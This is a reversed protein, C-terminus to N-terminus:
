EGSRESKNYKKEWDVAEVVMGGVSELDRAGMLRFVAINAGFERALWNRLEVAVLSDVGYSYLPKSTDIDPAPISIARSVKHTLSLTVISSAAAPSAATAFLHAYNPADSSDSSNSAHASAEDTDLHGLLSFMPQSLLDFGDGHASAKARHRATPLGFLSQGQGKKEMSGSGSQCYYDLIAHFDREEVVQLMGGLGSRHQAYEDKEAIVGVGGMVGLDLSVAAEGQRNRYEALADQFVNGAAYNGQGVTGAVGSLSSLFIFFSLGSPLLTHLNWSALRKSALSATWESFTMNEFLADRLVMTGQICGKIPPMIVSCFDLVQRLASANSVDCEYAEVRVGMDWLEKVLKQAPTSSPGSRSLLILNKAGKDAMWRAASRGLGGLGGAILYTADQPFTWTSPTPMYTQVVDAPQCTLVIKGTSKGSQMHRFADEAKSFSYAQLPHPVTLGKESMMEMLSTTMRKILQPKHDVAFDINVAIFSVNKAFSQMPLSNNAIIDAKGLEVFRGFPAMTEWSAVLSDGGLSNVLVDVGRGNTARKTAEAFSTNRSYFIHDDSLGYRTRLLERKSESSVTAYVEAGVAQAIQICFQGTGGAGAHILVSEGKELRAMEILGYYATVGVAPFAAAYEFSMDDPIKFVTDAHCRIHTKMCGINLAFVRDGPQLNAPCQTGVRLVVGSCEVGFRDDEVKGLATLLDKFNLGVARVELEVESPGLPHASRKDSVFRLSDLVGPTGVGLALPGAEKITRRKLQANTQEHIYQDLDTSEVVRRTHMKGDQLVYEVESTNPSFISSDCKASVQVIHRVISETDMQEDELSLTVFLRAPNESRLVRALGAIMQTDPWSSSNKAAQTVWLMGKGQSLMFKLTNFSAEDLESLLSKGAEELCIFSRDDLDQRSHLTDLSVVECSPCGSKILMSQLRMAVNRMEVNNQVLILIKDHRTPATERSGKSVAIRQEERVEVLLGDVALLKRANAIERETSEGALSPGSYLVIDFSGAKVGQDVPDKSFDLVSFKVLNADIAKDFSERARELAEKNKETALYRAFPRMDESRMQSVGALAATTVEGRGVNIELIRLAPNKHSMLKMFNQVDLSAVQAPELMDFDPQLDLGFCLRNAVATEEDDRVVTSSEMRGISVVVNNDQDLVTFRGEIKKFGNCSATVTARWFTDTGVNRSDVNALWADCIRTPMATKFVQTGGQTLPVFSLHVIADLTGPHVLFTDAENEVSAARRPLLRVDAVAANSGNWTANTLNRFTPGYQLGMKDYTKYLTERDVVKSCQSAVQTHREQTSKSRLAAENADANEPRSSRYEVQVSVRCADTWQDGSRVCIRVESLASGTASPRLFTEIEAFDEEDAPIVIANYFNAEKIWYGTIVQEPNATQHAAELAISVMGTAPLVASGDIKHDLLWSHDKHSLYRRWKAELPNWDPVPAGLLTRPFHQRLRLSESLKSEEWHRHTRSFNYLPLHVLHRNKQPQTVDINNVNELSISYGSCFLRGALTLVQHSAPQFRSLATTYRMQRKASKLVEEIPRQLAAHPGVEVIDQFDLHSKQGLKRRTKPRSALKSLAESFRVPSVMNRVWYNPDRLLAASAVVDGTVSSVMSVSPSPSHGPELGQISARYEEAADEMQVSHYAVGTKLERCFVSDSELDAQLAVIQEKDGAITVNLPSNICAVSLRSYASLYPQIENESLGVALMSGRYGFTSRCLRSAGLGRYYSIRVASALSIAGVTYAAAIEGSSHGVVAAPVIGFSRLLEVLAIQIASCLPQSYEPEGIKAADDLIEFVSWECSLGGLVNDFETLTKNFVPWQMLEKGMGAYQAGQGTFAFIIGGERAMRVPATILQSLDPLQDSSSVVAFARWAHQTRRLSLTYALHHLYDAEKSVSSLYKSHYSAYDSVIRTVAEKDAATWMLLKSTATSANGIGNGYWNINGDGDSNMHHSHRNGNAGNAENVSHTEQVTDSGDPGNTELRTLIPVSTSHHGELGRAKLVSCADDLVAHANSGGFGFSNVSARRLGDSPWPIGKTPFTLNLLDARIKPNVNKFNTNPPIIGKELVLVTKIIGAIGSAGELHGFNSKLAGIYLPNSPSRYSHFVSGIAAAEIPDGVPTGTGHAEFYRTAGPDLGAKEYTARILKAQNEKSPQTIGPTRGDQNSGTSRIVARITDNNRVADSLRKLVVVGFGESRAYGNARDDFSFCRSDPSTFGMRSMSISSDLALLLNAGGVLAMSTDGGRLGQCAFDLAMLSSSCASDLNISPGTLDFFWSIRNALMSLSAGNASYKPSRELDQSLVLKYDDCMSGTYVGTSSGRLAEMPVGANELARYTTELMGRQQPDLSAAETATISFFPADFQIPDDKLFHVGRGAISSKEKRSASYFADINLRDAPWESMTCKQEMLVQWLGDESDGDGPFKLALGVIAIPEM